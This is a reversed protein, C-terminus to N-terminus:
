MDRVPRPGTLAYTRRIRYREDPRRELLHIKEVTMSRQDDTGFLGGESLVAEAMRHWSEADPLNTALSFHLDFLSLINPSGYRELNARQMVNFSAARPGFMPSVAYLSNVRTVVREELRNLEGDPSDFTAALTTPFSRFSDHIRGNVLEFPATEAAIEALRQEIMEVADEPFELSDGITAHFGFHHAPGVWERLEPARSALGAPLSVECQAYVDWGLITSGIQYLRSDPEPILYTALRQM